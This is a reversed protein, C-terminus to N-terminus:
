PAARKNGIWLMTGDFLSIKALVGAIRASRWSTLDPCLQVGNCVRRQRRKKCKEFLGNSSRITCFCLVRARNRRVRTEVQQFKKACSRSDRWGWKLWSTPGLCRALIRFILTRGTADSPRKGFEQCHRRAIQVFNWGAQHKELFNIDSCGKRLFFSPSVRM